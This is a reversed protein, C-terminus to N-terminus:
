PVNWCHALVTYASQAYLFAMVQYPSAPNSITKFAPNAIMCPGIGAENSPRRRPQLYKYLGLWIAFIGELQPETRTM